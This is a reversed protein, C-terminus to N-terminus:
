GQCDKPLCRCIESVEQQRSTTTTSQAVRRVGARLTAAGARVGPLAAPVALVRGTNGVDGRQDRLELLLLVAHRRRSMAALRNEARYLTLKM